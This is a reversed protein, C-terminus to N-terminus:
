SSMSSKSAACSKANLARRGCYPVAVSTRTLSMLPWAATSASNSSTIAAPAQAARTGIAARRHTWWPAVLGLHRFTWVDVNETRQLTASNAVCLRHTLKQCM